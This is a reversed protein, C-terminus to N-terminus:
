EIMAGKVIKVVVRPLLIKEGEEMVRKQLSAPTDDKHVKVQIRDLIKGADPEETVLHVTAGTVPVHDLLVAEHVKIGYMGRGGYSPLLSPHINIITGRYKRLFAPTLIKLFGALVVLRIDRTDLEKLLTGENELIMTDIGAAKARHLAYANPSSSVVLEIKGGELDTDILNQLNTGGGSVLVAIKLM